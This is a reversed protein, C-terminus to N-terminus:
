EKVQVITLDEIYLTQGYMQISKPYEDTVHKDLDETSEARYVSGTVYEVNSAPDSATNIPINKYVAEIKYRNLTVM